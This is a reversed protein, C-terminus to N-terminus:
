SEDLEKLRRDKEQMLEQVAARTAAAWSAQPNEQVKRFGLAISEDLEVLTLETIAKGKQPGFSVRLAATTEGSPTVDPPSDPVPPSARPPEQMLPETRAAHEAAAQELEDDTFRETAVAAAAVLAAAAPPQAKLLGLKSALRDAGRVDLQVQGSEVQTPQPADDDGLEERIPVGSFLNPYCLRFAMARACKAIMGATDKTWFQTPVQKGNDYRTQIRQEVRLWVLPTTRGQRKAHAWAGIVRNGAKERLELSWVHRVTGAAEDIEFSDGAYVAASAIGLYDAQADAVAAMGAEAAMPEHRVHWTGDPGKSKREVLYAQKVFPDLGTRKCWAVFYEFDEARATPPCIIKRVLAIREADWAPPTWPAALATSM